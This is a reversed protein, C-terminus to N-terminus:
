NFLFRCHPYKNSLEETPTEAKEKSASNLSLFDNNNSDSYKGSVMMQEFYKKADEGYLEIRNTYVRIM